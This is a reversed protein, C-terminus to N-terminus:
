LARLLTKMAEQVEFSIAVDFPPNTEAAFHDVVTQLIAGPNVEGPQRRGYRRELWDALIAQEIQEAEIETTKIRARLAQTAASPAPAFGDKLRRRIRRLPLVIDGRWAAVTADIDRVDAPSLAIGREAAAFLAFLLVNSDVGVRDQLLLCADSVGAKAYFGLAFSWHPGEM